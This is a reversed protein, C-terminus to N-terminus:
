NELLSGTGTISDNNLSSLAELKKVYNENYPETGIIFPELIGNENMSILGSSPDIKVFSLGPPIRFPIKQSNIDAAEMFKKFIPVAVASGTQKYGLSRPRDYGVYVGVALDPSFGVFWADKNENTTGTKGALPVNLSAIKKGTGRLVVGELMSTIQYAIRSDLILKKSTLIKPITYDLKGGDQSCLNCINTENNLIQKGTKDNVSVILTPEIDMGGNVIM